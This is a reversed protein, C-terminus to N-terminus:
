ADGLCNFKPVCLVCLIYWVFGNFGFCADVADGSHQTCVFYGSEDALRASEVDPSTVSDRKGFRCPRPVPNAPHLGPHGRHQAWARVARCLAESDHQIFGGHRGSYLEADTGEEPYPCAQM